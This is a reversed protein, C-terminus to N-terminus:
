NGHQSRFRIFIDKLGGEVDSRARAYFVGKAGPIKQFHGPRLASVELSHKATNELVTVRRLALPGLWLSLIATLITLIIGLVLFPKFFRIVGTGCASIATIESDRYMRGLALMIALMQSAPIIYVLNQLSSLGILTLLVHLPLAGAAAVGVFRAFRNGLLILVLVLTIALWNKTTERLLYRDLISFM